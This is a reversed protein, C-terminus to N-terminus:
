RVTFSFDHRRKYGELLGSKFLKKQMFVMSMELELLRYLSKRGRLQIGARKELRKLHTPIMTKLWNCFKQEINVIFNGRVRKEM